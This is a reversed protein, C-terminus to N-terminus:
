LAPQELMGGLLAVAVICLPVIVGYVVFEMRTFNEAKIDDIIKNM